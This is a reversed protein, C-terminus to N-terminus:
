RFSAAEEWYGPDQMFQMLNAFAISDKPITFGEVSQEKTVRPATPLTTDTPHHDSLEM